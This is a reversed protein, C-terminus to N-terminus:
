EKGLKVALEDRSKKIHNAVRNYVMAGNHLITMGYEFYEQGEQKRVVEAKFSLIDRLMYIDMDVKQGKYLDEKTLILIGYNSIDKVLSQGKKGTDLIRFDAYYSLPYREYMRKNAENELVDVRFELRERGPDFETVRGGTVKLDGNLKYAVVLPDGILFRTISTERTLRLAVLSDDAELVTSKFVNLLSYHRVTVTFGPIIDM